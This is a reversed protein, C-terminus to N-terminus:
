AIAGTDSGALPGGYPYLSPYEQRRLSQPCKPRKPRSQNSGAHPMSPALTRAEKAALKVTDGGVRSPPGILPSLSISATEDRAERMEERSM